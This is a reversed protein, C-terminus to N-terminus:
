RNKSKQIQQCKTPNRQHPETRWYRWTVASTVCRHRSQSFGYGGDEHQLLSLCSPWQIPCHRRKNSSLLLGVSYLQLNRATVYNLTLSVYTESAQLGTSDVESLMDRQIDTRRVV